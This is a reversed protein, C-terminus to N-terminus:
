ATRSAHSSSSKVTERRRRKMELHMEMQFKDTTWGIANAAQPVAEEWKLGGIAVTVGIAACHRKYRSAMEDCRPRWEDLIIVKMAGWEAASKESALMEGPEAPTEEAHQPEPETSPRLFPWQIRRALRLLEPHLRVPLQNQIWGYLDRNTPVDNRCLLADAVDALASNDEDAAVEAVEESVVEVLTLHLENLSGREPTEGLRPRDDAM